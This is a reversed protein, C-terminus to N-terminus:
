AAVNPQQDSALVTQRLQAEVYDRKIRYKPSMQSVCTLSWAQAYDERPIRAFGRDTSVYIAAYCGLVKEPALGAQLKTRIAEPLSHYVKGASVEGITLCEWQEELMIDDPFSRMLDRTLKGYCRRGAVSLKIADVTAGLYKIEEDNPLDSKELSAELSLGLRHKIPKEGLGEFGERELHLLELEVADYLGGERGSRTDFWLHVLDPWSYKTLDEVQDLYRKVTKLRSKAALARQSQDATRTGHKIGALQAIEAELAAHEANLCAVHDQYVRTLRYDVAM